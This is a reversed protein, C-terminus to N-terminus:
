KKEYKEVIERWKIKVKTPTKVRNVYSEIRKFYDTRGENDLEILRM